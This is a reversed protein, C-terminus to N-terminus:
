SLFTVNADVPARATRFQNTPSAEDEFGLAIGFLIDLEDTFGLHARLPKPYAAISAMSCAALGEATVAGLFQGLWVGIDILAYPGLRKDVAVVALHPADFIQYNRLWADYRRAKDDRAIGMAGYLAFGCARRHSLYPEPYDLPFAVDPSPLGGKAAALLADRVVDTKPPETVVVRWPQTNCWSPAYQAAAFVSALRERPVPTPLFQRVSKRAGFVRGLTALDASM